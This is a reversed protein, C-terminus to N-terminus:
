GRFKSWVWAWVSAPRNAPRYPSGPRFVRGVIPQDSDAGRYGTPGIDYDVGEQPEKPNNNM